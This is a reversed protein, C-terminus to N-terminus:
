KWVIRTKLRGSLTFMRLTSVAMHEHEAKGLEGGMRKVIQHMDSPVALHVAGDTDSTM